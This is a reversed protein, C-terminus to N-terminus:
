EGWIIGGGANDSNGHGSGHGHGHGHEEGKLNIDVDYGDPNEDSKPGAKHNDITSEYKTVNFKVVEIEVSDAARGLTVKKKITYETSTRTTEVKIITQSNAMVVINEVKNKEMVVKDFADIMGNIEPDYKFSPELWNINERDVETGTKYEYEGNVDTYFYQTENKITVNKEEAKLQTTNGAQPASPADEETQVSLVITPTLVCCMGKGLAPVKVTETATVEKTLTTGYAEVEAIYTVDIKVTQEEITGDEGATPLTYTVTTAEDNTVNKASGNIFAIVNPNISVVAPSADPIIPAEVDVDYESRFNEKECSSLGLAMFATMVAISLFKIKKM